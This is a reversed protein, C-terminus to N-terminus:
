ASLTGLTWGSPQQMMALWETYTHDRGIKCACAASDTGFSIEFHAGKIGHDDIVGQAAFEKILRDAEAQAAQVAAQATLIDTITVM